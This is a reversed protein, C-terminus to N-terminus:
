NKQYKAIQVRVYEGIAASDLAIGLVYNGSAAPAALGDKDSAVEAGKKIEAGALVYGIDKVQIDVDDGKAVAGSLEGTIDNVGAEILAIGVPIDTAASTLVVDGNEDYKVIKNRVDEIDAGAAETITASNNIQTGNFNKLIAKSM